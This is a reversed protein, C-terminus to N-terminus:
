ARVRRTENSGDATYYRAAEYEYSACLHAGRRRVEDHYATRYVCVDMGPTYRSIDRAVNAARDFSRFTRDDGDIWYTQTTTM